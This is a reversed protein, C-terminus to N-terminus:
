VTNVTNFIFQLPQETCPAAATAILSAHVMVTNRATLQMAAALERKSKRLSRMKSRPAAFGTQIQVQCFLRLLRLLRALQLLPARRRGAVQQQRRQRNARATAIRWCSTGSRARVAEAGDVAM